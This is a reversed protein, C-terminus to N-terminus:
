FVRYIPGLLTIAPHLSISFHHTNRTLKHILNNPFYYLMEGWVQFRSAFAEAALGQAHLTLLDQWIAGQHLVIIHVAQVPPGLGSDGVLSHTQM